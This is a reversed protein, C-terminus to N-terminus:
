DLRFSNRDELFPLKTRTEKLVTKSLTGTLIKEEDHAEALTEGLPDLIVSNGSYYFDNGDMGYRNIGILYSQNEIARAQLLTTWHKARKNPWSAIYIMCDYDDQNRSWVPFRLDYCVNLLINWSKLTVIKRSVGKNFFQDEKAMAFLHNKDYFEYNGDPQMWVMRNYYHNNEEVIFSGTIVADNKMAENRMWHFTTQDMTEGVSKVNMTFGSNFMEPLVILDAEPIENIKRSFMDLNEGKNEWYIDSQIGSVKIDM